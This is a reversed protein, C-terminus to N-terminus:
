ARAQIEYVIVTGAPSVPNISVITYTIGSVILADTTVPEVDLGKAAVIVNKDGYKIAEGDILGQKFESVVAKAAYDTSTTTGSSPDWPNAPSTVKRQITVDQGFKTILRLATTQSRGYNFAAM